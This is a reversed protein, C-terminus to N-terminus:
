RDLLLRAQGALVVGPPKQDAPLPRADDPPERPRHWLVQLWRVCRARSVRPLLNTWVRGAQIARGARYATNTERSWVGAGLGYLTDNAISIAEDFDAFKTVSVVPGFIKEQFVRM